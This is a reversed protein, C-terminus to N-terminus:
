RVDDGDLRVCTTLDTLESGAAGVDTAAFAVMSHGDLAAQAAREPTPGRSGLLIPLATAVQVTVSLTIGADHERDLRVLLDRLASTDLGFRPDLRAYLERLAGEEGLRRWVLAAEPDPRADTM